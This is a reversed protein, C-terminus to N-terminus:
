SLLRALDEFRANWAAKAADAAARDPLREHQVAAMSKRAGKSVFGVQVRTDDDCTFRVSRYPTARRVIVAANLWRRRKRANAFADFLTEVPVAFTRSKTANYGGGRRQGKERLGRIREYGVTIMQTWWSPTGLSAVFAAIKAHPKEACREDDLLRVWQRWTKGTQKRVAADSMGALAAYDRPPKSKLLQLRAAAYAEGTKQMRARVLRKLDKSAPM